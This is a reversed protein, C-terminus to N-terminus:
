LLSLSPPPPPSSFLSPFHCPASPCVKEIAMEKRARAREKNAIRLLEEEDLEFKRKRGAAAAAGEKAEEEEEIIVKGGERGVITRTGSGGSSDGGAKGASGRGSGEGGGGGIPGLKSDLGMQVLEFAHVARAVAEAEDRASEATQEAARRTAEREVRRIEARQALLNNVACERCFLHGGARCAVVPARAPLLCLRCAAFPLFSDRNM